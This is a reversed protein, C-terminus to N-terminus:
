QLSRNIGLMTYDVVKYGDPHVHVAEPLVREVEDAMVGFQRGDGCTCRYAPKFNFLYLGIGLPHEGVSVINEKLNRDSTTCNANPKRNPDPCQNGSNDSESAQGTGSATLAKVTGYLKLVPQEYSRKNPNTQATEIMTQAGWSILAVRIGGFEEQV